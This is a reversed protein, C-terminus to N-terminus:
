RRRRKSDDSDRSSDNDVSSSEEENATDESADETSALRRRNNSGSSRKRPSTSSSPSQSGTSGTPSATTRAASSGGTASSAIVPLGGTAALARDLPVTRLSGRAARPDGLGLASPNQVPSMIYWKDNVSAAAVAGPYETEPVPIGQQQQQQFDNLTEFISNGTSSSQQGSTTSLVGGSSSSTGSHSADIHTQQIEGGGFANGVGFEATTSDLKEQQLGGTTTSDFGGLAGGGALNSSSSSSSSFQNIGLVQPQVQQQQQRQEQVFSRQFSTQVPQPQVEQSFRQSVFGSTASSPVSSMLPQSIFSQVRRYSEENAPLVVQQPLQQVQEFRNISTSTKGQPQVLANNVITRSSNFLQESVTPTQIIQPVQQQSSFVQRSFSSSSAPRQIIVPSGSSTFSKSQELRLSGTRVPSVVQRSNTSSFQKNVNLSKTGGFGGGTSSSNFINLSSSSSGGGGLAGLSSILSGSTGGKSSSSSSRSEERISSVVPQNIVNEQTVRRNSSSLQYIFQQQQAPTLSNFMEVISKSVQSSGSIGGGGKVGAFQANAGNFAFLTIAMMMALASVAQAITICRRIPKTATSIKPAPLRNYRHVVFAAAHQKDGCCCCRCGANGAPVSRMKTPIKM